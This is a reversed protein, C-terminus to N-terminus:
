HRFNWERRNYRSEVLETARGWIVHGDTIKTSSETAGFQEALDDSLRWADLEANTVFSGHDRGQRYGPQRPAFDLCQAVQELDAAYLITGHYLVHNRTIRLANGSFKRDRWTLDCIGQLDVDPLQHRVAALVRSMVYRHAGDIKLVGPDNKASLVVSYMLCGPGAVISAGGSCRRFVPIQHAECYPLNAEQDAKSSRGLVVTASPLEWTRFTEGIEEAEAGLLLAEDIALHMTTDLKSQPEAAFVIRRM